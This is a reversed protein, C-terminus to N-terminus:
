YQDQTLFALFPRMAEAAAVAADVFEPRHSVSNPSFPYLAMLQVQLNARSAQELVACAAPLWAPLAKVPGDGTALAKLDFRLRGDLVERPRAHFHRQIIEFVVRPEELGPVVQRILPRLQELVALFCERLDAESARSLRKWYQSSAGNPLTLEIATDELM